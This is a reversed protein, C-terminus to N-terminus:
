VDLLTRVFFNSPFGQDFPLVDDIFKVNEDSLSISLAEINAQLHEAKRAGVIPFVYPAKHMVYAIAVAVIVSIILIHSPHLSFLTFVGATIHKAGVKEAVIGLANCMKKETENREWPGFMTRGKEGTKRRTEEEEDSRIHGGALVNWFTLAIGTLTSPCLFCKQRLVFRHLSIFCCALEGEHRCMPLIEREIDRQLVSYAAQYVVFPTKGNWKAYENAKVVFWAPSDSIGQLGICLGLSYPSRSVISFLSVLYLVKGALVLQHLGDM